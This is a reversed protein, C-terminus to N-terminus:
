SRTDSKIKMTALIIRDILLMAIISIGVLPMLIGLIFMMVLVSRSITKDKTRLLAGISGKPKRVKWLM